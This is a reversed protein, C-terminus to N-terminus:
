LKLVQPVSTSLNLHTQSWGPSCLSVRNFAIVLLWFRLLSFLMAVSMARSNFARAIGAPSESKIELM